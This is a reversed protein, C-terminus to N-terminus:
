TNKHSKLRLWQDISQILFYVTAMFITALYYHNRLDLFTNVRMEQQEFNIFMSSLFAFAVFLISNFAYLRIRQIYLLRKFAKQSVKISFDQRPSIEPEKKLEKFLLEYTMKEQETLDRNELSMQEKLWENNKM